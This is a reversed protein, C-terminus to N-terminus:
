SCVMNLESTFSPFSHPITFLERSHIAKLFFSLFQKNMTQLELLFRPCQMRYSMMIGWADLEYSCIMM